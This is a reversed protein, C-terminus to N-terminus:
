EIGTGVQRKIEAVSGVHDGTLPYKENHVYKTPVEEVTYIVM